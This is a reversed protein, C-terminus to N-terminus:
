KLLQELSALKEEKARMENGMENRLNAAVQEIKTLKQMGNLTGETIKTSYNSDPTSQELMM